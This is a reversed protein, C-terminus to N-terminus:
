HCKVTTLVLSFSLSLFLTLSLSLSLTLSLCLSPPSQNPPANPPPYILCDVTDSMTWYVSLLGPFDTGGKPSCLWGILQLSLCM